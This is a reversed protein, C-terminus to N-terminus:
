GSSSRCSFRSNSSARGWSGGANLLWQRYLVQTPPVGSVGARIQLSARCDAATPEVGLWSQSQLHAKNPGSPAILPVLFLNVNFDYTAGAQWNAGRAGGVGIGAYGPSNGVFTGSGPQMISGFRGTASEGLMANMYSKGSAIQATQDANGAEFARAGMFTAYQVFTAVAFGLSSQIYM